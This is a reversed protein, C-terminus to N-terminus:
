RLLLMRRTQQFERTRFRYLYVGNPLGSPNFNAQYTGAVQTQNVLQTIREGKLNYVTLKVCTREPLTYRITTQDRFPNPANSALHYGNGQKQAVPEVSTFVSSDAFAADGRLVLTNLRLHQAYALTDGPTGNFRWYAKLGQENGVLEQQYNAQIESVTRADEWLRLEDIKGSFFNSNAKKTNAGIIMPLGTGEVTRGDNKQGQKQGNIYLTLNSGDYTFAIHNWKGAKIYTNAEVTTFAGPVSVYPQASDSVNQLGLEFGGTSASGDTKDIIVANQASNAQYKVWIELSMSNDFVDLSPRDSVFGHDKNGDLKLSNGFRSKNALLVPSGLDSEQRQSNFSTAQLFFSSDPRSPDPSLPLTTQLSTDPSGAIKTILDANGSMSNRRYIGVSDQTSSPYRSALQVRISDNAVRAHMIPAIPFAGGTEVKADGKLQVNSRRMTQGVPMSVLDNFRWYAKLGEEYGKLPQRYSQQIESETRFSDWLALEDIRGSFFKGNRATNAGIVFPLNNEEVTRSDNATADKQGNVYITLESGNYTFALHTWRGAPVGQNSTVSTFAGPVNFRVRPEQGGGVLNIEYGGSTASGATKDILRANADSSGDHKVWLELTFTNDTIDLSPRDELISYDQDGDLALSTGGNRAEVTETDFRPRATLTYSFAPDSNISPDIAATYYLYTLGNDASTDTYQLGRSRSLTDLARFNSDIANARYLVYRNASSSNSAKIRPRLELDIESNGEDLVYLDPALPFINRTAAYDGQLNLNVGNAQDKVTTSSNRLGSFPYYAILGSENGSLSRYLNNRIEILERADGWFRVEDINGSFFQDKKDDNAGIVFPLANPRVDRSDYVSADKKGNIYIVLQNGDYVFALHAWRGAPIGQNSTVSTFTAPVNFRVRPEEGSGVLHVEYGGTTVNGNTKDILRANTDSNGDHRVWMELTFTSDRIDLKDAPDSTGSVDDISAFDLEGNLKLSQGYLGSSLSLFCSVLAVFGYKLRRCFINSGNVM